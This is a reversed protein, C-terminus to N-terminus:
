GCRWLLIKNQDGTTPSAMILSRNKKSGSLWCWLQGMIWWRIIRRDCLDIGDDNLGAFSFQDCVPIPPTSDVIDIRTTAESANDDDDVVLYTVWLTTVGAPITQITYTGDSNKVVGDNQALALQRHGTLDPIKYSVYYQTNSAAIPLPPSQAIQDTICVDFGTTGVTFDKPAVIVSCSQGNCNHNPKKHNQTANCLDFVIWKRPLKFSKDGVSIPIKTDQFWRNRQSLICGTSDRDCQPWPKRLQYTKGTAAHQFHDTPAWYTMTTLHFYSIPQM